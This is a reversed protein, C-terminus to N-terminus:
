ISDTCTENVGPEYVCDASTVNCDTGADNLACPEGQADSFGNCAAPAAQTLTCGSPCSESPNQADGREYGVSCNAVVEGEVTDVCTETFLVVLMVRM